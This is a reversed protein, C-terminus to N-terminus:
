YGLIHNSLFRFKIDQYDDYIKEFLDQAENDFSYEVPNANLRLVVAFIVSLAVKPTEILKTKKISYFKPKPACFLFRQPFGDSKAAAESVFLDCFSNPHTNIFVNLRYIFKKYFVM